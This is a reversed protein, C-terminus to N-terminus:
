RQERARPTQLLILEEIMSRLDCAGCTVSTRQHREQASKLISDFTNLVARGHREILRATARSEHPSEARDALLEAHSIIAALAGRVEHSAMALASLAETRRSGDQSSSTM